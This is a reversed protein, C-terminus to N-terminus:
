YIDIYITHRKLVSKPSFFVLRINFEWNLENQIALQVRLLGESFMICFLYTKGVLFIKSRTSLVSRTAVTSPSSGRKYLFKGVKKYKSLYKLVFDFEDKFDKGFEDRWDKICRIAFLELESAFKKPAPLPRGPDTNVTLKLLVSFDAIVLRRFKEFKRFFFFWFCCAVRQWRCLITAFQSFRRIASYLNSVYIGFFFFYLLRLPVYKFLCNCIRLTNLRVQSHKEKLQHFLLAHVRDLYLSSKRSFKWMYIIYSNCAYLANKYAWSRILRVVNTFIIIITCWKIM